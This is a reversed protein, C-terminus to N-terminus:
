CGMYRCPNVRTGDVYIAFHVHPGTTYGTTGIRGIIEGKEVAVGVPFFAPRSLHNYQTWFGNNHNIIIYYGSLYHWSNEKVVGRDAAYVNGYNNYLNVIDIATHGAYCMWRCTVHPNDVPWRFKGSGIGPIVKTGVRIVEQVPQKMVVSSIKKYGALVGNVYTEQYKANAYGNQDNTQIIRLGERLTPDTVYKTSKPYVTEKVLRERNVIVNVPSDFYTVNLKTGVQLIQETSKLIDANITLVQQASLGNLSGVGEVTDYAKVTYFKKDVGYGYSLFYVISNKDMLIDSKPALGKGVTITEIVSIGIEREGYTKLESPLRKQKILDLSTKSIFNLLYQEKAAEFDEINKVYIIAGNSFEIKNVQISFLDNSRLYDLIETDKNVYTAYSEETTVSIDEGLGIASDPFYTEYSSHYVEDLLSRIKQADSIIGILEKKHYVKTLTAPVESITDIPQAIISTESFANIQSDLTPTAFLTSLGLATLSLIAALLFPMAKKMKSERRKRVRPM